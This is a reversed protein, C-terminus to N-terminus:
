PRRNPLDVSGALRWRHCGCSCSCSCCNRVLVFSPTHSDEPTFGESLARRPITRCVGQTFESLSTTVLLLIDRMTDRSGSHDRPSSSRRLRLRAKAPRHGTRWPLVRPGPCRSRDRRAQAFPITRTAPMALFPRGWAPNNAIQRLTPDHKETLKLTAHLCVADM